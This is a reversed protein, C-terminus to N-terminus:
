HKLAFRLKQCRQVMGVDSLNVAEFLDPVGSTDHHLQDLAFRKGVFELIARKSKIFSQFDRFLDSICQSSRMFPSDNMAIQFWRVDLECWVPCYLNQIETECFYQVTRCLLGINRHHRRPYASRNGAADDACH